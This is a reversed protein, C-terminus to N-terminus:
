RLGSHACEGCGLGDCLACEAGLRRVISLPLRTRALAPRAAPCAADTAMPLGLLPLGHTNTQRRQAHAFSLRLSRELALTGIVLAAFQWPMVTLLLAGSLALLLHRRAQRSIAM